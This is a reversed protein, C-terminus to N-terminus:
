HVDKLRSWTYAQSRGGILESVRTTSHEFYYYFAIEFLEWEDFLQLLDTRAITPDRTPALMMLKLKPPLRTLRHSVAAQVIGLLDAIQTQNMDMFFFHNAIFKDYPSLSNIYPEIDDKNALILDKFSELAGETWPTFDVANRRADIAYNYKMVSEYSEKMVM